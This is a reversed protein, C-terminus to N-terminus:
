MQKSYVSTQLWLLCSLICRHHRLATFFMRERWIGLLTATIIITSMIIQLIIIEISDWPISTRQPFFVGVIMFCIIVTSTNFHAPTVINHLRYWLSSLLLLVILHLWYRYKHFYISKNMNIFIMLIYYLMLFEFKLGM